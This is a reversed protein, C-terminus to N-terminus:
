SHIEISYQVKDQVVSAKIEGLAVFKRDKNDTEYVVNNDDIISSNIWNKGKIVEIDIRRDLRLLILTYKGNELKETVLRNDALKISDICNKTVRTVRNEHFFVIDQNPSLKCPLPLSFSEGEKVYIKYNDSYITGGYSINQSYNNILWTRVSSFGNSNVTITLKKVQLM